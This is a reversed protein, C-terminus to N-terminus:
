NFFILSFSIFFQQSEREISCVKGGFGVEHEAIFEGPSSNFSFISQDGKPCLFLTSLFFRTLVGAAKENNVREAYAM